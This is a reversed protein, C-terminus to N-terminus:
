CYASKERQNGCIDAMEEGKSSSKIMEQAEVKGNVKAFISSELGSM